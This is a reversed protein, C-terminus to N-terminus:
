STQGAMQQIQIVVFEAPFLPAFGVLINVVGLNISPQPNNEADCKVFYAQQPTTGQFAGKQFLMQMFAGINLRLESWLKEDNPEFVAWKTGDYLSSEIYLATRRIPVYKWESGAQDNGLLTRAGWVVDGYVKFHRLCNIARVNLDGNEQDTLVYQLGSDGTLSADIGAPAKWVGDPPSNADTRAYIGAVFGCPPFLTPRNKFLPDPALVWPFYYASNKANAGTINGGNTGVPGTANLAAHTTLRPADVIYFARKSVCYAQLNSITPGDSEGPVCLLNFIDVRDLLFVGQPANLLVLEFNQDTAPTLVAGDAGGTLPVPAATASPAATPALPTSAGPPIFTIYNSDNDVVNVVYNPDTTVVSLNTFSELTKISGTATVQQVLLNFSGSPNPNPVSISVRLTNGWVGPNNAWLTLSGGITSQARASGSNNITAVSTNSPTWTIAPLPSTSGDSYTPTATFLQSQGPLVTASQPIVAIKVLVPNTVSIHATGTVGQWAANVTVPSGAPTPTVGQALGPVSPLVANNFPFTVDASQPGSTAWAVTGTLDATSGDAYVGLAKLQQSQGAAISASVPTVVISNLAAATVNLTTSVSVSGSTATITTSGPTNATVTAGAFTAVAAKDTQWTPTVSPANSGDSYIPIVAFNATQPATLTPSSPTIIMSVLAKPGVSFNVGASTVGAWTAKVSGSGTGIFLGPTTTSFAGVWTALATVDQTTGDMYNATATMQQSQGATLTVTAPTVTIGSLGVSSVVVTLTASITGTSDIASITFTGPQNATALGTSTIPLATANSSEWNLGALPPHTGDSNNGTALFQIAGGLPIPPLNGPTITISQLVPTGVYLTAPPSVVSGSSAVIQTSAYGVGAAVATACAAPGSGPMLTGDWVLRVIYAKTGGNAFFQYVAYGLYSRSDFGGFTTEYEPWSEVLTAETVPGQPAWGAFAAISTAVGTITHVGSSLEEIYVGPYTFSAM